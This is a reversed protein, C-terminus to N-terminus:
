NIYSNSKNIQNTVRVELSALFILQGSIFAGTIEKQLSKDNDTRIVAVYPRTKDPIKLEIQIKEPNDGSLNIERDMSDPKLM